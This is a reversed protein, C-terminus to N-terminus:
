YAEKRCDRSLESGELRKLDRLRTGTLCGDVDETFINQNM